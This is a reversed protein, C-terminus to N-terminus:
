RFPSKRRKKSSRPFEEHALALSRVYRVSPFVFAKIGQVGQTAPPGLPNRLGRISREGRLEQSSCEEESESTAFREVATAGM